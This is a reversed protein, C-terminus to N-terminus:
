RQLSRTVANTLLKTLNDDQVGVIRWHDGDRQMTLQIRETQIDLNAQAVNEQEKVDTYWPMALAVVLFPKGAARESTRKAEAHVENKLTEKGKASVSPALSNLESFTLWPSGALAPGPRAQAILAKFISDYDFLGDMTATDNRQAADALLALSYAPSSQYHRWWFYGGAAVGGIVFLLFVAIILLLRGIGGRSGNRRGPRPQNQDLNIVIRNRKM